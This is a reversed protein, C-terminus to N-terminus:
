PLPPYGLCTRAINEVQLETYLDAVGLLENYLHVAEHAITKSSQFSPMGPEITRGYNIVARATNNPGPYTLAFVHYQQYPPPASPDGYGVVMKAPVGHVASYLEQAEGYCQNFWMVGYVETDIVNLEEQNFSRCTSWNPNPSMNPSSPCFPLEQESREAVDVIYDHSPGRPAKPVTPSPSTQGTPATAADVASCAAAFGLLAISFLKTSRM